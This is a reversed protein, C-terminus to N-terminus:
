NMPRKRWEYVFVDYMLSGSLYDDKEGYGNLGKQLTEQRNMRENNKYWLREKFLGREEGLSGLELM